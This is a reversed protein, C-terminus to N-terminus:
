KAPELWLIFGPADANVDFGPIDDYSRFGTPPVIKRDVTQVRMRQLVLPEDPAYGADTIPHSVGWDLGESPQYIAALPALPEDNVLAPWAPSALSRRTSM